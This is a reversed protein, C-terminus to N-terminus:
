MRKKIASISVGFKSSAKSIAENTELGDAILRLVFAIVKAWDIAM